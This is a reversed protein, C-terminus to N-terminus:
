LLFLVDLTDLMIIQPGVLMITVTVTYGLSRVSFNSGTKLM